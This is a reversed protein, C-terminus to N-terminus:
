FEVKTSSCILLVDHYNLIILCGNTMIILVDRTFLEYYLYIIYGKLFRVSFENLIEHEKYIYCM